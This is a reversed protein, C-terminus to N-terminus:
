FYNMGFSIKVGTFMTFGQYLYNTSSAFDSSAKRASDYVTYGVDQIFQFKARGVFFGPASLTAGIIMQWSSDNVNEFPISFAPSVYVRMFNMLTIGASLPIQLVNDPLYRVGVGLSPQFPMIAFRVSEELGIGRWKFEFGDAGYFSWGGTLTTDFALGSFLPNMALFSNENHIKRNESASFAGASDNLGSSTGKNYEDVDFEPASNKDKASPLFQGFGAFKPKWYEQNLSSIIVGTNPGDSIASIFQNRGIYIGVHTIASASGSKFFVLDGLEAKESSIIRCYSYLQKATRPLQLGLSIKASYYILGSCDFSDPGTAGYIYPSGVHQKAEAVFKERNAKAEELSADEACLKLCCVSFIVAFCVLFRKSIQNFDIVSKM